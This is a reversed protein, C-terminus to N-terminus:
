LGGVIPTGDEFRGHTGVPTTIPLGYRAGTNFDDVGHGPATHV